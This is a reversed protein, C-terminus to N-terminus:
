KRIRVSLPFYKNGRSLHSLLAFSTNKDPLNRATESRKYMEYYLYLIVNSTDRVNDLDMGIDSAIKRGEKRKKMRKKKPMKVCFQSTYSNGSVLRCLFVFKKRWTTLKCYLEHIYNM